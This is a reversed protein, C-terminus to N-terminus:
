ERGTREIRVKVQHRGVGSVLLARDLVKDAVYTNGIMRYNVMQEKKDAGLAVLAPAESALSRPFQIYTKNGDSYVRVPKWSPSDGKMRFGFDLDAISQKTEPLVTAAEVKAANARLMAWQAAEDEPYSFSISPMWDDKRSVLKVQYTRRDTTVLLNTSLGIDTPKVIVHTIQHAGSGSVAPVVKWRTADGVQVSTVTEGPQLSMDCVYLPACVITPMSAGFRFVVAGADGPAALDALPSRGKVFVQATTVNRKERETLESDKGSLLNVPPPPGDYGDAADMADIAPVTIASGPAAAGPQWDYRVDPPPTTLDEITLQQDQAFATGTALLVGCFIIKRM